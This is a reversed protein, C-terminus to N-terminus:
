EQSNNAPNFRVLHLAVGRPGAAAGDAQVVSCHVNVTTASITAAGQEYFTGPDLQAEESYVTTFHTALTRTQGPGFNFTNNTPAGDAEARLSIRVREEVDGFNTCFFVTALGTNAAGGNDRVGSLRYIVKLPDTAAAIAPVAPLLSAAAIAVSLIKM